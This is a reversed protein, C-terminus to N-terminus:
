RDLIQAVHTSQTADVTDHAGLQRALGLRDASVDDLRPTRGAHTGAFGGDFLAPKGQGTEGTNSAGPVPQQPRIRRPLTDPQRPDQAGRCSSRRQEVEQM